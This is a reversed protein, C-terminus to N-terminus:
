ALHKRLHCPKRVELDDKWPMDADIHTKSAGNIATAQRKLPPESGDHDHSAPRKREEMKVLSSLLIPRGQVLTMLAASGSTM